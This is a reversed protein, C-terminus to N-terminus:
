KKSEEVYEPTHEHMWDLLQRMVYTAGLTNHHPGHEMVLAFAYKPKESPFFGTVWSHVFDKGLGIEATGTKASVELYSNKLGLATGELVGERMGEQVVQLTAPDIHLDKEVLPTYQAEVRPTVLYGGNAISAVARVMQIPTVQFGYQGISTHYTDGIRWEPDNPFVKAKWSPSPIVGSAEDEFIFGTKEGLGFMRMYREINTIGLGKQEGFGGGVYYFYVDSSVALAKRMTLAGHAKWDNFQAYEGAVYPNELRLSGTSVLVTEPTVVHETLAAIAMFPKVISGPTFQGSVVRNLYPHRMDNAYAELLTEDGQQVAQLNYEPYNTMALVEGTEVDMIIGAGGTFPVKDALDGILTNFEEQVRADVTLHIPLGSSPKQLVSESVPRAHVDTELLQVGNVGRLISNYAREVGDVGETNERYLVGKVDRAPTRVYGLLHSMGRMSTYAREAYPESGDKTTYPTNWALEVGNRDYVVGREAFLVKHELHNNESITKYKDGDIAMLQVARCFFFFFVFFMSLLLLNLSRSPIPKNLRGELAHENYAPLNQVDLFIDEPAIEQPYKKRPVRVNRIVHCVYTVGRHFSVKVLASFQQFFSHYM